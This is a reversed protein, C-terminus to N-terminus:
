YSGGPYEHNIGFFNHSLDGGGNFDTKGNPINSKPVQLKGGSRLYRLFLTYDNRDYTAPKTIPLQNAIDTTLCVRFCYGQIRHDQGGETELKDAQILPLLGSKPNGVERYPDVFVKFQENKTPITVGNRVENYLMNSERGITNTIGACA